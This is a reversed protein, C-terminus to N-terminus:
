VSILIIFFSTNGKFNLIKGFIIAKFLLIFHVDFILSSVPYYPSKKTVQNYRIEYKLYYKGMWMKVPRSFLKNIPCSKCSTM